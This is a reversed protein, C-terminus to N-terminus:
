NKNRGILGRVDYISVNLNYIRQATVEKSATLLYTFGSFAFPGNPKPFFAPVNAVGQFARGVDGTYAKNSTTGNGTFARRQGTSTVGKINNRFLEHWNRTISTDLRTSQSILDLQMPNGRLGSKPTLSDIQVCRRQGDDCRRQGQSRQLTCETTAAGAPCLFAINENDVMLDFKDGFGQGGYRPM